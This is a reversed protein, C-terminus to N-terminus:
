ATKKNKLKKSNRARVLLYELYSDTVGNVFHEREDETLEINGYQISSYTYILLDSYVIGQEEKIYLRIRTLDAYKTRSIYDKVTEVYERIDLKRENTVSFELHIYDRPHMLYHIMEDTSPSEWKNIWEGMGDKYKKKLAKDLKAIPESSDIFQAKLM